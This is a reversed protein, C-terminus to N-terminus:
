GNLLGKFQAFFDRPPAQQQAARGAMGHPLYQRAGRIPVGNAGISAYWGAKNSLGSMDGDRFKQAQKAQGLFGRRWESAMEPTLKMGLHSRAWAVDDGEPGRSKGLHEAKWQENMAQRDLARQADVPRGKLREEMRLQQPSKGAVPGEWPAGSPVGPPVGHGPSGQVPNVMPRPIMRPEDVGGPSVVDGRPMVMQRIRDTSSPQGQAFERQWATQDPNNWNNRIAQERARAQSVENMAGPTAIQRLRPDIQPSAGFTGKRAETPNWQQQNKWDQEIQSIRQAAQQPTMNQYGDGRSKVWAEHDSRKKSEAAAHDRQAPMPTGGQEFYVKRGGVVNGQQASAGPVVDGFGRQQGGAPQRWPSAQQVPPQAKLVPMASPQQAQPAKNYVMGNPPPQVAQGQSGAARTYVKGAPPVKGAVGGAAIM